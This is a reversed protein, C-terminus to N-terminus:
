SKWGERTGDLVLMGGVGGTVDVADGGLCCSASGGVM